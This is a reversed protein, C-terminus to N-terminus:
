WVAAGGWFLVTHLGLRSAAVSSWMELPEDLMPPAIGDPMLSRVDSQFSDDFGGAGVCDAGAATKRTFRELGLVDLTVNEKAVGVGNRGGVDGSVEAVM